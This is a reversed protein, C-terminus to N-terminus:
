ILFAPSSVMQGPDQSETQISSLEAQPWGFHRWPIRGLEAHENIELCIAVVLIKANM